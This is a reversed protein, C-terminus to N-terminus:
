LLVKRAKADAFKSIVNDFNVNQGHENEISIIALSNLRAQSM